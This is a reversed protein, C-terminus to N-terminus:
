KRTNLAQQLIVHLDLNLFSINDTNIGLQAHGQQQWNTMKATQTQFHLESATHASPKLM